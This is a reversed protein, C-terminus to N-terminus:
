AVLDAFEPHRRVYAAVYGCQPVVRFNERRAFELAERVIEGAIGRGRLEPPVFTHTITMVGDRARYEVVSEHGETLLEFRSAERDHHISM